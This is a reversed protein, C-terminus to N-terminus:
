KSECFFAYHKLKHQLAVGSVATNCVAANRGPIVSLFFGDILAWSGIMETESVDRGGGGTDAGM